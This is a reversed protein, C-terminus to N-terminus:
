VFHSTFRISAHYAARLLGSASCLMQSPRTDTHPQSATPPLAALPRAQLSSLWTSDDVCRWSFRVASHAHHLSAGSLWAAAPFRARLEAAVSKGGDAPMTAGM